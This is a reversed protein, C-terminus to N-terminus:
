RSRNKRTKPFRKKPTITNINIYELYFKVKETTESIPESVNVWDPRLLSQAKLKKILYIRVQNKRDSSPKNNNLVCGILLDALQVANNLELNSKAPVVTKIKPNLARNPKHFNTFHDEIIQTFVDGKCRTLDDYVLISNNFRGLGLKLLRITTNTYLIAKKLNKSQDRRGFWKLDNKTRSVLCCRFYSKETKFFLDIAKKAVELDTKSAIKNYKIEKFSGDPKLFNNEKKIKNIEERLLKINSDGFVFIAGVLFITKNLDESEDFYIKM